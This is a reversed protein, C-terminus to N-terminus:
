EINIKILYESCHREFLEGTSYVYREFWDVSFTVYWEGVPLHEKLNICDIKPMDSFDFALIYEGDENKYYVKLDPQLEGGGQDPHIAISSGTVTIEAIEMNEALLTGYADELPILWVHGSGTCTMGASYFARDSEFNEVVGKDFHVCLHQEPPDPKFLDSSYDEQDIYELTGNYYEALAQLTFKYEEYSLRTSGPIVTIPYYEKQSWLADYPSWSISTVEKDLGNYDVYFEGDEEFAKCFCFGKVFLVSQFMLGGSLGREDDSLCSFYRDGNRFTIMGFRSRAINLDTMVVEVTGTGVKAALYEDKETVELSCYIAATIRLPLHSIDKEWYNKYEVYGLATEPETEPETEPGIESEPVPDPTTTTSDQLRVANKYHVKRSVARNQAEGEEAALAPNSAYVPYPVHALGSAPAPEADSVMKLGAYYNVKDLSDFVIEGDAPTATPKSEGIFQGDERSPLFLVSCVGLLIALCAVLAACKLFKPRLLAPKGSKAKRYREYQKLKEANDIEYARDLLKEDLDLLQESLKESRDKKM